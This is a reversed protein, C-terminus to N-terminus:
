HNERENTHGCGLNSSPCFVTEVSAISELGGASFQTVRLNRKWSPWKEVKVRAERTSRWFSDTESNIKKTIAM